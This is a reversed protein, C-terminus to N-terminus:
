RGGVQLEAGATPVQVLDNFAANESVVSLDASELRPKEEVCYGVSHLTRGGASRVSLQAKHGELPGGSLVPLFSADRRCGIAIRSMILYQGPQPFELVSSDSHLAPEFPTAQFDSRPSVWNAIKCLDRDFDEMDDEDDQDMAYAHVDPTRRSNRRPSQSQSNSMRTDSNRRSPDSMLSSQSNMQLQTQVPIPSSKLREYRSLTNGHVKVLTLSNVLESPFSDCLPFRERSVEDDFSVSLIDGATLVVVDMATLTAFVPADNMVEEEPRYDWLGTRLLPFHTQSEDVSDMVTNLPAEINVTVFCDEELEKSRENDDLNEDESDDARNRRTAGRTVRRDEEEAQDWKIRALPSPLAAAVRLLLLYTGDQGVVMSSTHTPHPKLIDPNGAQKAWQWFKYPPVLNPPIGDDDQMDIEADEEHDGANNDEVDADENELADDDDDEEQEEEEPQGEDHGEEIDDLQMGNQEQQDAGNLQDGDNDNQRAMALQQNRSLCAGSVRGWGDSAFVIKQGITVVDIDHVLQYLGYYDAEIRLRRLRDSNSSSFSGHRSNSFMANGGFGNGSNNSSQVLELLFDSGGRLYRLIDGFSEGDACALLDPCIVDLSFVFMVWSTLMGRDIFIRGDSDILASSLWRDTMMTELLPLSTRVVDYPFGGVNLRLLRENKDLIFKNASSVSGVGGGNAGAPLPSRHSSGTGSLSLTRSRKRSSNM